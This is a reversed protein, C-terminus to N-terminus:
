RINKHYLVIGGLLISGIVGAFIYAMTYKFSRKSEPLDVAARRNEQAEGAPGRQDPLTREAPSGPVKETLAKEAEGSGSESGARITTGTPTAPETREEQNGPNEQQSNQGTTSFIDLYVVRAKNDENAEKGGSTGLRELTIKELRTRVEEERSSFDGMGSLPNAINMDTINRVVNDWDMAILLDVGPNLLKAQCSCPGTLFEAAESINWENIGSGVIAWLAIGRGYVPFIVPESEFKNLDDESNILMNIFHEERPDDRSITIVEFKVAPMKDDIGKGSDKWWLEMDPLVLTRELRNLHNGLLELAARDKRRDGSELFVWVATADEVLKAAISERAPSSVIREANTRNLPGSWIVKNIGSVRPYRLVVWPLEPPSLSSLYGRTIDDMGGGTDVNRLEINAKSEGGRSAALLYDVLEKEAPDFLGEYFIVISYPDADWYELAYRFVPIPCAYAQPPNALKMGGVILMMLFIKMRM